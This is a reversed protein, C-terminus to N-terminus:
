ILNKEEAREAPCFSGQCPPSITTSSVAVASKAPSSRASNEAPALVERSNAGLTTAAPPMTTSLEEAQRLSGATGSTTLSTFGSSASFGALPIMALGFQVVIAAM